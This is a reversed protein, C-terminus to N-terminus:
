HEIRLSIRSKEFAISKHIECLEGIELHYREGSGSTISHGDLPAFVTLAMM